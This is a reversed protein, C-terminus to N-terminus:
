FLDVKKKLQDQKWKPLKYFAEKPMELIAEFDEDSLYAERHKLDIGAAPNESKAKVQDYTYRLNDTNGGHDDEDAEGTEEAAAAEDEADEPLTNKGAQKQEETLVSSLAAIAAKRQTGSSGTPRPSPPKTSSSSFASNLAALASARQTPGDQNGGSKGQGIEFATQKENADTLQGLWVFVEAHTDLLLVDETM